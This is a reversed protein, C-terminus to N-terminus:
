VPMCEGTTQGPQAALWIMFQDRPMPKSFYYGQLCNVGLSRLKEASAKDEVGEAVTKMGFLGALNIIAQVM